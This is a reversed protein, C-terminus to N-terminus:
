GNANEKLFRDFEGCRDINFDGVHKRLQRLSCEDPKHGPTLAILKGDRSIVEARVVVPPIGYAFRIFDGEKVEIGDEDKIPRSSM